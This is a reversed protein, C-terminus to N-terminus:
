KNMLALDFLCADEQDAYYKKRVGVQKFGFRRYLQIAADNSIRVELQITAVDNTIAEHIMHQLLQSGYGQRQYIQDVAIQIVEWVDGICHVILIGVVQNQDELIWNKYHQRFCGAVTKVTWGAESQAILRAIQSIDNHTAFRIPM